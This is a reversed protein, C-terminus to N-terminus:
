VDSSDELDAPVIVNGRVYEGVEPYPAQGLTARQKVHRLEHVSDYLAANTSILSMTLATSHRELM